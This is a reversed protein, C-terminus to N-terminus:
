SARKPLPAIRHGHMIKTTQNAQNQDNEQHQPEETDHTADVRSGHLLGGATLALPM